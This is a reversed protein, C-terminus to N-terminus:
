YNWDTPGQDLEYLSDDGHTPANSWPDHPQHV